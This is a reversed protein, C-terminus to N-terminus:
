VPSLFWVGHPNFFLDEAEHQEDPALKMLWAPEDKSLSFTHGSHLTPGESIRWFNFRNMLDAAEGPDVSTPVACEPLGFHHMGCSYYHDESGILLVSACYLDFLSGELLSFWRDWDHAVGASEVKIALGGLQQLLKTFKILRDREAQMDSRFHMYVVSQHKEIESLLPAAIQGQGALEFTESMRPDAAAFEVAVHDKSITDALVGGAFMYRAMPDLTIVRRIFDSRDKWPGPICLILETSM